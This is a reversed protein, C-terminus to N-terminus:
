IPTTSISGSSILLREDPERLHTDSIVGIKL